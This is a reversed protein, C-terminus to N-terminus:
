IIKNKKSLNIELFIKLLEAYEKHGFYGPHGDISRGGLEDRITKKNNHAWSCIDYNKNDNGFKIIDNKDFCDRFTVSNGTMPFIKIGNWKCFSYLGVFDREVKKWNEKINAHNKFWKMFIPQLTKDENSVEKTNYYKRTSSVFEAKDEREDINSNVIFYEELPRYFVEFRSADPNELILFIKDREEWNELIWEYAMRVVREGGGGSEAENVFPIGILNSLHAGFNLEERSGWKQVGYLEKYLPFVSDDRLELGELGGGQSHSCGNIYFKEYGYFSM